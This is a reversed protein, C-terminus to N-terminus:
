GGTSFNFEVFDDSNAFAKVYLINRIDQTEQRVIERTKYDAFDRSLRAKMKELEVSTFEKAATLTIKQRTSDSVNERTIIFEASLWYLVKSIVSDNYIATDAIVTVVNDSTLIADVM